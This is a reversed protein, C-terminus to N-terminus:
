ADLFSTKKKGKEKKLGGEGGGGWVCMDVGCAYSCSLKSDSM